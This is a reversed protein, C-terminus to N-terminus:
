PDISSDWHSFAHDHPRARLSACDGSAQLFFGTDFLDDAGVVVKPGGL